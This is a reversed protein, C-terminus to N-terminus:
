DSEVDPADGLGFSRPVRVAPLHDAETIGLTALKDVLEAWTGDLLVDVACAPIPPSEICVEEGVLSKHPQNDGCTRGNKLHRVHNFLALPHDARVLLWRGARRDVPLGLAVEPRRALSARGGHVRAVFLRDLVEAADTALEHGALWDSAESPSGPGWQFEVPYNTREYQTDYQWLGEDELVGRVLICTWDGPEHFDALQYSHLLYRDASGQSEGWVIALVERAVPGPHRRGGPTSYGWLRNIIEALDRITRTSDPPMALHYHPHAVNNRMARHLEDMQRNRQGDLLGEHRAWEQLQAMTGRFPMLRGDSLRLSWEGRHSGGSRFAEDVSGFDSAQIPQEENTKSRVVPILHDYFEIFRERLAQELLLWSLDEAVTFADYCLVGYSHLTRIREFGNRIGEAVELRLDCDAITEQQFEAANEPSLALGIGLGMPMFSLTRPDPTTLEALTKIEM